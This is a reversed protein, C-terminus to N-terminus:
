FGFSCLLLSCSHELKSYFVEILMVSHCVVQLAVTKCKHWVNTFEMLFTPSRYHSKRICRRSPFNFPDLVSTSFVLPKCVLGFYVADSTIDGM